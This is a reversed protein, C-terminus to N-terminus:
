RANGCVDCGQRVKWVGRCLPLKRLVMCASVLGNAACRLFYSSSLLVEQAKRLDYLTLFLTAEATRKRLGKVRDVLADLKQRVEERPDTAAVGSGEESCGARELGDGNGNGNANAAGQAQRAESLGTGASAQSPKQKQKSEAVLRALAATIDATLAARATRRSQTRPQQAGHNTCHVDRRILAGLNCCCDTHM